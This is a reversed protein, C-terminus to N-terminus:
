RKKKFLRGIWIFPLLLLVWAKKLLALLIALAGATAAKGYKVGVLTALVGVAGAAAVKDGTAFATYKQSPTPTYRDFVSNVYGRVEEATPNNKTTVMRATVYGKRDFMAIKVNTSVESGFKVDTAYFMLKRRQDLTPYVRWGEFTVPIGLHEGQSKLSQRLETAIADIEDDLDKANWDDFKVYGESNPSEILLTDIDSSFGVIFADLGECDSWGWKEKVIPCYYNREWIEADLFLPKLEGRSVTVPQTFFSVGTPNSQAHVLGVGSYYPLLAILLFVLNDYLIKKIQSKMKGESGKM